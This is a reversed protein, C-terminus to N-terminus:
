KGLSLLANNAIKFNSFDTTSLIAITKAHILAIASFQVPIDGHM